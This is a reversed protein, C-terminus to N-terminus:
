GALQADFEFKLEIPRALSDGVPSSTECRKRLYDLQEPTAGPVSLRVTYAMRDYGSGPTDDIGLYSQVNFHGDAEVSLSGVKLGLFSAHMAILDVDCAALSALLMQMPNLEADGGIYTVVDGFEVRSRSGGIWHAVIRPSRDAQAPDEKVKDRFQLLAEVNIGENVDSM